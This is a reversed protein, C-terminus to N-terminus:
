GPRSCKRVHAPVIVGLRLAQATVQVSTTSFGSSDVQPICASEVVWHGQSSQAVAIGGIDLPIPRSAAPVTPNVLAGPVMGANSSAVM